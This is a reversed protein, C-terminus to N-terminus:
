DDALAIFAAWATSITEPLYYQKSLIGMPIWRKLMKQFYYLVPDNIPFKPRDTM